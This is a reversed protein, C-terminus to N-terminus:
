KLVAALAKEWEDATLYSAVAGSKIAAGCEAASGAGSCGKVFGDNAALGLSADIAALRSAFDGSASIKAAVSDRFSQRKSERTAVSTQAALVAAVRDPSGYITESRAKETASETAAVLSSGHTALERAALGTAFYQAIGGGAKPGAGASVDYRTGFSALVSYADLDDGSNGTFKCNVPVTPPPTTTAPCPSLKDATGGTNALLPLLVLEQRNYGLQIAPTQTADAGVKIGLQTNTGFILLNTHRPTTACGSLAAAAIITAAFARTSPIIKRRNRYHM